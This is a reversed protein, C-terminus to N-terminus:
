AMQQLSESEQFAVQITTDDVWAQQTLWLDLSEEWLKAVMTHEEEVSQLLNTNLHSVQALLQGLVQECILVSYAEM